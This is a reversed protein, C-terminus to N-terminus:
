NHTFVDQQDSIKIGAAFVEVTSMDTVCTVYYLDSGRTINAALFSGILSHMSM